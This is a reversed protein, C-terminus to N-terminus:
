VRSVAQTKSKKSTPSSAYEGNHLPHTVTVHVSISQQGTCVMNSFFPVMPFSFRSHQPNLIIGLGPLQRGNIRVPVTNLDFLRKPETRLMQEFTVQYQFKTFKLWQILFFCLCCLKFTKFHKAFRSSRRSASHSCTM